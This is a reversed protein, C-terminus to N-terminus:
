CNTGIGFTIKATFGGVDIGDTTFDIFIHNGKSTRPLLPKFEYGFGNSNTILAYGHHFIEIDDKNSGGDYIKM